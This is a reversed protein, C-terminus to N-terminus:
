SEPSQSSTRMRHVDPRARARQSLPYDRLRTDVEGGLRGHHLIFRPRRAGLLQHPDDPARPVPHVQALLGEAHHSDGARAAHPMDLPRQLLHRAHELRARVQRALPDRNAVQRTLRLHCIQCARDLGRAVARGSPESTPRPPASRSYRLSLGSKKTAAAKVASTRIPLRGIINPKHGRAPPTASGPAARRRSAPGTRPRDPAEVPPGPAGEPVTLGVHVREDRDSWRRRGTCRPRRTRAPTTRRRPPTYKSVEASMMVNTRSPRNSSARALPRVPSAM